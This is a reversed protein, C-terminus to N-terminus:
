AREVAVAALHGGFGLSLKWLREVPAELALALEVVGSAGLCHGIVPKCALRPVGSWPGSALGALEYADGAATGTGHTVILQPEPLIAWLAALARQLTAPDTFLTEHGADGCRVGGRLWWGGPAHATARLALMGAGEAPAFGTPTAFAQPPRQGCLVGLAAFGALLFPTLSADAAGALARDSAGAALLDAAALLGYLGTSCAGAVPAGVYHPVGLREALLPGLQGPLAAILAKPDGALLQAWAHADGKSTSISFIPPIAESAPKERNDRSLVHWPQRAAREATHLLLHRPPPDAIIGCWGHEVSRTLATKGRACALWAARADGACVLCDWAVIAVQDYRRHPAPHVAAVRTGVPSQCPDGAVAARRSKGRRAATRGPMTGDAQEM